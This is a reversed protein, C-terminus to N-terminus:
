SLGTTPLHFSIPGLTTSGADQYPSKPLDEVTDNILKPATLGFDARLATQLQRALDLDAADFKPAGVAKFNKLILKSLALNPIIEHCDTDIQVQVKTRSMRAAGE